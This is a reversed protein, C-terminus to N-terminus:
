KFNLNEFKIDTVSSKTMGPVHKIFRNFVRLSKDQVNECSGTLVEDGELDIQFTYESKNNNDCTSCEGDRYVHREFSFSLPNSTKNKYTLFKFSQERGNVTCVKTTASIILTDTEYFVEVRSRKDDITSNSTKEQSNNMPSLTLVLYAFYFIANMM